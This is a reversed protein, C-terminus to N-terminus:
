LPAEYWVISITAVTTPAANGCVFLAAGPGIGLTGDFDERMTFAPSSTTAATTTLQSVGMGRLWTPATVTAASGTFRGFNTPANTATLMGTSVNTTTTFATINAGTALSAPANAVYGYGFNSPAATGSVYGIVCAVLVLNVPSGVPNWLGCVQATNSFIPVTVGTAATSGVYLKNNYMQTYYKGHLETVIGEGAKGGIQPVGTASVPLSATPIASVTIQNIAM